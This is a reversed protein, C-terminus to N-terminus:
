LLKEQRMDALILSRIYESRDLYQKEIYIQMANYIETPISITFSKNKPQEEM